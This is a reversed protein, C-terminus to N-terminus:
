SMAAMTIDSSAPIIPAIKVFEATELQYEVRELGASLGGLQTKPGTQIVSYARIPIATNRTHFLPRSRWSTRLATKTKPKWSIRLANHDIMKKPKCEGAQANKFIMM